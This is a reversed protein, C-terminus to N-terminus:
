RIIDAHQRHSEMLFDIEEVNNGNYIKPIQPETKAIIKGNRISYLPKVQKRIADYENKAPLINLNGPKGIEIGYKDAINLTKAGNNTILDFSNILEQYGTLHCVHVGMHLVELMNGVGLPYFPDMIDDNGFSVNLGYELLEKVRTIGRRKPYTDYRGQLHINISPNAVFNINARKLLGFLKFTYANNYSSMATTHSATVLEGIDYRYAEAAVVELGRSQDDDTEDCHVDVLVNYKEALKFVEKISEVADERTDEFHPIAGIGDAGMVLAEELLGLGNKYNLIGHQPFAIIQVDILPAFEEKVELMAKLSTLGPEDTNVHTRVYQTGHAINWKLVKSARSKVDEFTLTKKRENWIDIGEFLTGTSNYVPDGYTGVYDLHTHSDVYPPIALRGQGEVIEEGEVSAINREIKEIKGNRIAIDWLGEKKRLAVNKIIM